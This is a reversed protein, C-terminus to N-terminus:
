APSAWSMTSSPDWFSISGGEERKREPKDSDQNMGNGGISAPQHLLAEGEAVINPIDCNVCYEKKSVM